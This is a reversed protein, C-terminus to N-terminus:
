ANIKMLQAKLRNIHREQAARLRGPAESAILDGMIHRAEELQGIIIEEQRAKTTIM